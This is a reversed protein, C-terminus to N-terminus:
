RRTAGVLRGDSWLTERKSRSVQWGHEEHEVLEAEIRVRWTPTWEELRLCDFRALLAVTAHRADKDDVVIALEEELEVRYRFAKTKPDKEQFFTYRLGDALRERDVREGEDRWGEAVGKMIPSLRAENFAELMEEVRWRIRTEPSALMLRVRWGAFLLVALGLLTLLTRKM